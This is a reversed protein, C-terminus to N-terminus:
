DKFGRRVDTAGRGSVRRLFNNLIRSLYATPRYRGTRLKGEVQIGGGSRSNLRGSANLFQGVGPVGQEVRKVWSIGEAWPLGTDNYIAEESPAKIVYRYTLKDRDRGDYIVKPGEPHRPDLRQRIPILVEGPSKDFGLFGWLNAKTYGKDDGDDFPAELTGSINESDLGGAIEQTVPHQEFAMKMEEVAPNFFAKEVAQQAERKLMPDAAQMEILLQKQNITYTANVAM